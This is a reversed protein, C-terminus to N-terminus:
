PQDHPPAEATTLTDYDALRAPRVSYHRVKEPVAVALPPPQQREHRWRELIQRVAEPYPSQQQLAETLAEHLAERGYDDLLELLLNVTTKLVHGREGAQQLLTEVLPSAQALRDQGRHLRAKSKSLWLANIHSEDEIQRGKDFSRPHTAIVDTGSLIRVRKLDALATLPKQLHTHPISYDNRDFRVYPYKRACVQAPEDTPFATDPLALLRPHEQEFAERVSLQSDGPCRRDASIGQCWQEAQANLDDLDQWTRGAFFSERVYRIAREVRGKENGRAVAVPRPEFRYHASFDLFTPHFRIADGQRELVATKLNDYLVTRPIGNWADFAAVHGRLFNELKQGLYFRLFIWRSWSLVLVFAMMPHLAKGIRLHGFHAWDCQGEEGPLTRLRLYAEPQPRPRLQAIRQRFQSPGGPYGRVQAMQYLRTATLRPYQKLTEVIFPLYPDIISARQSREVKPLGAQSLVRDVVSHHIRLQSAVTGVRWKEVFHYRLIKTETDKDIM